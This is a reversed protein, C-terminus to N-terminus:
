KSVTSPNEVSSANGEGHHSARTDSDMLVGQHWRQGEGWKSTLWDSRVEPWKVVLASSLHLHEVQHCCGPHVASHGGSGAEQIWFSGYNRNEGFDM